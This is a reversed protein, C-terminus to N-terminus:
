RLFSEMLPRTYHVAGSLVEDRPRFLRNVSVGARTFQSSLNHGQLGRVLASKVVVALSVKRDSNVALYRQKKGNLKPTNLLATRRLADGM